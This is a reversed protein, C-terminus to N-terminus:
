DTYLLFSRNYSGCSSKLLQVLTPLERCQSVCVCVCDCLCARVCFVRVCEYLRRARARACVCVCVCVCVCLARFCLILEGNKM